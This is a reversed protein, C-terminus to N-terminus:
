VALREAEELALKWTPLLLGEGRWRGLELPVLCTSPSWLHIRPIRMTKRPTSLADIM